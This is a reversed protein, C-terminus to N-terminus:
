QFWVKNGIVLTILQVTNLEDASDRFCLTNKSHFSSRLINNSHRRSYLPRQPLTAAVTVWTEAPQSRGRVRPTGAAPVGLGSTGAGGARPVPAARSPHPGGAGRQAGAAGAGCGRAPAAASHRAHPLTCGPLRQAPVRPRPATCHPPAPRRCSGPLLLGPLLLTATGACDGRGGCRLKRRRQSPM